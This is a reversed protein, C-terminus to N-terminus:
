KERVYLSWWIRRRIEDETQDDGAGNLHLGNDQAVRIASGLWVWGGSKKNTELLYVSVLFILVVSSVPLGDGLVDVYGLATRLYQQSLATSDPQLSHLAGLALVVLSTGMVSPEINSVREGSYISWFDGVFRPWHLVPYLRHVCEHYAHLYQQASKQDPLVDFVSAGVELGQLLDARSTRSPTPSAVITSKFVGEESVPNLRSPIVTQEGGRIEDLEQRITQLQRELDQVQRPVNARGRRRTAHIVYKM